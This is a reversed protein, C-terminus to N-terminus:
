LSDTTELFKCFATPSKCMTQHYAWRFPRYPRPMATEVNFETYAEPLPVGSLEAYDPFDGLARIEDISIGTATYKSGDCKTYDTTFPMISEKLVDQSAEESSIKKRQELPLSKAAEVLADRRTPAFTDLWENTTLAPVNVPAKEPSLSRPPTKASSTRRGRLRFRSLLVDRQRQSLRLFTITTLCFAIGLLLLHTEEMAISQLLLDRLHFIQKALL